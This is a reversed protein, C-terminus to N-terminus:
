LVHDNCVYDKGNCQVERIPSPNSNGVLPAIAVGGGM